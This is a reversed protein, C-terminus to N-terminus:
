EKVEPPPAQLTAHGPAAQMLNPAMGAEARRGAWNLMGTLM